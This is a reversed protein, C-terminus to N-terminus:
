RHDSQPNGRGVRLSLPWTIIRRLEANGWIPALREGLALVPDTSHERIFRGTASWSRLYGLLQPLSWEATMAFTPATLETFPFPLDRYGTEVHTREPPWYPGVTETYFHRIATDIAGNDVRHLGYTWVALVADPKSVREVETYFANLDFWHLAQAVTVLDVSRDKLGSAQAPAVRYTVRPHPAVAEIQARSADTAVVQEFREALDPSAQGSGAACDWALARAPAIDALWDFLAAPYRPRFDAYNTSVAAFHDTFSKPMSIDAPRTLGQARRIPKSHRDHM